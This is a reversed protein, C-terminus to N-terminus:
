MIMVHYGASRPYVPIRLDTRVTTAISVQTTGSTCATEEETAGRLGEVSITGNHYETSRPDVTHVRM